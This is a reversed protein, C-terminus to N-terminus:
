KCGDKILLPCPCPMPSRAMTIPSSCRDLRPPRTHAWRCKLTVLVIFKATALAFTGDVFPLM